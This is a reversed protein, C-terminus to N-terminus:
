RKYVFAQALLTEVEKNGWKETPLKQLFLVLDQFEMKNLEASFRMLFAACLYIHFARFGNYHDQPSILSLSTLGGTALGGALASSAGGGGLTGGSTSATAASDESLCSDWMRIICRMPMERLLLCNIWRFAFHIYQVHHKELHADLTADVRQVIERLKYVMRQIGPQAFTYNDQIRDLLKSLCWFVDSELDLYDSATLSISGAHADFLADADADSLAPDPESPRQPSSPDTPDTTPASGTTASTSTKSAVAGTYIYETLFVLYFPTSVDMMGQVYGSATHRVAFIYLLRELSRQTRPQKFFPIGPATRPVDQRIQHLIDREAESRAAGGVSEPRVDYPVDNSDEGAPQSASYYQQVYGRYEERRKALTAERRALNAPLYGLLIKWSISRALPPIGNWSARRLVDMDLSEDSLLKRFNSLKMSHTKSLMAAASSSTASPTPPVSTSPPRTSAALSDVQVQRTISPPSASQRDSAKPSTAEVQTPTDGGRSGRRSGTQFATLSSLASSYYTSTYYPSPNSAAQSLSASRDRPVADGESFSASHPHSSPHAGTTLGSASRTNALYAPPDPVSGDYHPQADLDLDPRYLVGNQSASSASEPSLVAPTADLILTNTTSPTAKIAGPLVERKKWFSFGPSKKPSDTEGSAGTASVASQGATSNSPSKKFARALWSSVGSSSSKKLQPQSPVYTPDSSISSLDADSFLLPSLSSPFCLTFGHSAM